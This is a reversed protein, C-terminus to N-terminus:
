IDLFYFTNCLSVLVILIIVLAESQTLTKARISRFIDVLDLYVGLRPENGTGHDEGQLTWSQGLSEEAVIALTPTATLSVSFLQVQHKSTLSVLQTKEAESMTHKGGKSIVIIVGGLSRSVQLTEIAKQVGCAVCGAMQKSPFLNHRSKISLSLSQRGHSQGAPGFKVLPHAIHAATNFLVLGVEASDPLDETILNRLATRIFHWYGDSNM